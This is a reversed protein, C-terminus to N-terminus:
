TNHLPQAGQQMRLRGNANNCVRPYRLISYCTERSFEPEIGLIVTYICLVYTTRQIFLFLPM